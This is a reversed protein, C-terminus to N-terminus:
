LKVVTFETKGLGSENLFLKLSQLINVLKKLQFSTEYISVPISGLHQIWYIYFLSKYYKKMYYELPMM